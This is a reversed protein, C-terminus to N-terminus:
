PTYILLLTQGGTKSFYSPMESNRTPMGWPKAIEQPMGKKKEIEQPLIGWAKRLDQPRAMVDFM